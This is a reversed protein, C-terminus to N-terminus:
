PILGGEVRTGKANEYGDLEAAVDIGLVENGRIFRSGAAILFQRRRNWTADEVCVWTGDADRNFCKRLQEM